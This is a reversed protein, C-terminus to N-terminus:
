VHARGIECPMRLRMREVEATLDGVGAAHWKAGEAFWYHLSRNAGAEHDQFRREAEARAAKEVQEDNTSM